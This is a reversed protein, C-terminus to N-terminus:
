IGEVLIASKPKKWKVGGTKSHFPVKYEAGDYAVPMRTPRQALLHEVKTRDPDWCLMAPTSGTGATSLHHVKMIDRIEPNGARVVEAITRVDGAGTSSYPTQHIYTWEEVPLAIMKASEVGRTVSPIKGLATNIASVIASPTSSSDFTVAQAMKLTHASNALGELGSQDHGLWCVEDIKEEHGELVGITLDRDLPQGTTRSRDVDELTYTMGLKIYYLNVTRPIVQANMLPLENSGDAKLEATGVYNMFRYTVSSAGASLGPAQAVARQYTREPYSERIIEPQLVDLQQEIYLSDLREQM